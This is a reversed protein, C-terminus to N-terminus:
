VSFPPPPLSHLQTPRWNCLSRKCPQQAIPTRFNNIPIHDFCIFRILFSGFLIRQSRGRQKTSSIPFFKNTSPLLILLKKKNKALPFNFSTTSSFDEAMMLRYNKAVAAPPVREPKAKAKIFIKFNFKRLKIKHNWMSNWIFNFLKGKNQSKETERESGGRGVSM